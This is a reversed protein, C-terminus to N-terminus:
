KGKKRSLLPNDNRDAGVNLNGPGYSRMRRVQFMQIRRDSRVTNDKRMMDPPRAAQEQMLCFMDTVHNESADDLLIHCTEHEVVWLHNRPHAQNADALFQNGGPIGRPEFKSKQVGRSAAVGAATGKQFAPPGPIVFGDIVKPDRRGDSRLTGYFLELLAWAFGTEDKEEAWLPMYWGCELDGAAMRDLDPVKNDSLSFATEIGTALLWNRTGINPVICYVPPAGSRGMVVVKSTIGNETLRKNLADAITRAKDGKTVRVYADRARADIVSTAGEDRKKPPWGSNFYECLIEGAAPATGRFWFVGGPHPVNGNKSFHTPRM